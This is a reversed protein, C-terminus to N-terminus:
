SPLCEIHAKLATIGKRSIEDFVYLVYGILARVFELTASIGDRKVSWPAQAVWFSKRLAASDQAIGTEEAALPQPVVPSLPEIEERDKDDLEFPQQWLARSWQRAHGRVSHSVLKETNPISQTISETERQMKWKRDLQSKFASLFRNFIGLFFLFFITLVYTTTTTTTWETFWLTVHTSSSFTSAMGSMDMASM